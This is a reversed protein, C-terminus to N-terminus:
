SACFDIVYVTFSIESTQGYTNGDFSAVVKLPYTKAKSIDQTDITFTYHSSSGSVFRFDFVSNDLPSNDNNVIDLMIEPCVSTM